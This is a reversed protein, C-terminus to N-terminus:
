SLSQEGEIPVGGNWCNVSLFLPTRMFNLFGWLSLCQAQPRKVESLIIALFEKINTGLSEPLLGKNKVM